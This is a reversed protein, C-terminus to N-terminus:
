DTDSAWEEPTQKGKEEFEDVSKRTFRIGSTGVLHHPRWLELCTEGTLWWNKITRESVGFRAAVQGISMYKGGAM